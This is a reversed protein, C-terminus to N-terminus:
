ALRDVLSLAQAAYGRGFLNVHNLVHYLQYVALREELGERDEMRAAYAAHCAAPFGGFLQMMAVDAWGDGISCAPDIVAVRPTGDRGHTALANGSWLDGHLLAPKPHAPLLSSLRAVVGDMRGAEGATVLGRDRALAIQPGLRCRANFEVWDDCWANRQPTLGIHNDIDFGYRHGAPAAHLAALDEGFRRWADDDARGAELWEVLLVARGAFTGSGLPRPALVTGTEVLARLSAAEEDLLPLQDASGLKAVVTEGSALTVAHVAHICGGTLDRLGAFAPDFGAAELAGRIAEASV